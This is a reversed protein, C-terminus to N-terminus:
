AVVDTAGAAPYWRGAKMVRRVQLENSLEVLDARQGPAITGRDTVGLLQLPNRSAARVVAPLPVGSAALNRVATDLAIVSGALRGDSVLRCAGNRVEVELEGIRMRGDGTGALGIADSVLVLRNAPKARLIIPWVSREVHLGDAVLEVYAEDHTLAAVALGPRHNDVGSMANFLHTTTRAGAGYGRSAEDATANSHGLSVNVGARALWRVLDLAGDREPAVTMIRLGDLMPELIARDVASPLQIYAENQAGKKEPSICPGEINFGLPDAGDQPSAPMWRRVRQAFAGLLELPSTVAAPVFSTVGHRLLARAMGDLAAEDGMADHGGWGHVHVDVFGPSLLPGDAGAEDHDISEIHGDGVVIRAGVVDEELVARGLLTERQDDAM